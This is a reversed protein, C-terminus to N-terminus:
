RCRRQCGASSRATGPPTGRRDAAHPDALGVVGVARDLHGPCLEVVLAADRLPRAHRRWAVVDAAAGRRQHVACRGFGIGGEGAGRHGHRVGRARERYLHFAEAVHVVLLREPHPLRRRHLVSRDVVRGADRDRVRVGALHDLHGVVAVAPARDAQAVCRLAVFPGPWNAPRKATSVWPGFSTRDFPM